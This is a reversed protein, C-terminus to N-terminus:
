NLVLQHKITSLKEIKLWTSWNLKPTLDGYQRFSCTDQYRGHCWLGCLHKQQKDKSSSVGLQSCSTTCLKRFRGISESYFGRQKRGNEKFGKSYMGHGVLFPFYGTSLVNRGFQADVSFTRVESGRKNESTGCLHSVVHIETHVTYARNTKGLIRM